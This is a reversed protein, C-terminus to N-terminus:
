LWVQSWFSITSPLENIRPGNPLLQYIFIYLEMELLKQKQM